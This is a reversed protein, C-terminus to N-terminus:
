DCKGDTCPYLSVYPSKQDSITDTPQTFYTHDSVNKLWVIAAVILAIFVLIISFAIADIHKEYQTRM